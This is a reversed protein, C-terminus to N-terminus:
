VPQILCQVHEVWMVISFGNKEFKSFIYQKKSKTNPANLETECNDSKPSLAGQMMLFIVQPVLDDITKTPKGDKTFFKKDRGLNWIQRM